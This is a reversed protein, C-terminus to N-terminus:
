WRHVQVPFDSAGWKGEDVQKFQMYDNEYFKLLNMGIVGCAKRGELWREGMSKQRKQTNNLKSEISKRMIYHRKALQVMMRQGTTLVVGEGGKEEFEVKRWRRKVRCSELCYKRRREKRASIYIWQINRGKGLLWDAMTNVKRRGNQKELFYMINGM